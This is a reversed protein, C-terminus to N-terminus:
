EIVRDARVVLEAPLKLGLAKATKHNLVLEVRMPQEIPLNGPKAGRLIKDVYHAARRFQDTRSTGYSLLAGAHAWDEAGSIAPWRHKLAMGVIRDRENAMLAAAHLVLAEVRASRFEAFAAELDEMKSLVVFHSAVRHQTAVRRYTKIHEDKRIITGDLLFGISRSAPAALVLMEVYKEIVADDAGTMNTLGTVMGGPRAHSKALGAGVPSAGNAQVIPTEPAAKAAARTMGAGAVIVAPKRVALETALAPAVDPKGQAWREEIVYQAGEKWGLAALEEKFAILRHGNVARSSGELWGIVVPQKSQALISQAGALAPWAAAVILARRRRIPGM